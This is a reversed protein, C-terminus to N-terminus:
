CYKTRIASSRSDNYLKEDDTTMARKTIASKRHCSQVSDDSSIDGDSGYGILVLDGCQKETDANNSYANRHDRSAEEIALETAWANCRQAVRALLDAAEVSNRKPQNVFSGDRLKSAAKLVFKSAIYKRRQREVCYRQELGRTSMTQDDNSQLLLLASLKKSCCIINNSPSSKTQPCEEESRRLKSCLSRTENRMVHLENRSYWISDWDDIQNLPSSVASFEDIDNSFQVCSSKKESPAEKSDNSNLLFKSSIIKPSPYM